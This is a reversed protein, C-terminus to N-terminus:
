AISLLAEGGVHEKRAERGSLIGKPTSLILIGRGSKVPRIEGVGMYVRKSLKSIRKVESVKPKGDTYALDIELVPFNKQTKKKFDSVYGEKKLCALISEKMKSHPVVINAHGRVGANKIMNVMNAIQDMFNNFNGALSAFGLFREKTQLSVSVYEASM